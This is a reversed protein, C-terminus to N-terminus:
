RGAWAMMHAPMPQELGWHFSVPRSGEYKVCRVPGLFVYPASVGEPTKKRDRIFLLITYGLEEHRIYSQAITSQISTTSQSQWHFLHSSIAYDEYMTSPSFERENKNIDAFFAHIKREKIHLVGERCTHPHEFSGLGLALLIQERTYSCHLQLYGSAAYVPRHYHCKTSHQWQILEQLDLLLDPYRLMFAHLEPLSEAPRVVSWLVKYVSSLTDVDFEEPHSLAHAFRELLDGDDQLLLKRMGEKLYQEYQGLEQELAANQAVCPLLKSYLADPSDVGLFELLEFLTSRRGTEAVHSRIEHLMRKRTFQSITEKINRLIHERSQRDLHIYCGTPLYSFGQEIQQQIKKAVTRTSLAKFRQLYNFKRHARAIFDFVVLSEKDAYRRLGRGLQQLFITLSETPRLFLVTDVDPIDVGENYLDVTFLVNLQGTQLKDKALRRCEAPTKSTLAMSPVGKRNFFDAMFEAHAVDVCFGICKMKLVNDLHESIQTLIWAARQENHSLLSSLQAADYRGNEFKLHSYDVSSEDSIGYYIFPSLLTREIADALRLEHTFTNGFLPRIDQGDMREPTATLGILSEPQLHSLAERYGSAAGHHAEDVVIYQFHNPAFQGKLKNWMTITCFWHTHNSPSNSGDVLCGFSGMRLVQRFATRAQQLIEKRHALFLLTAHPHQKCFQAYDFAAIMTKGTGTAAVILHKNKGIAREREINELAEEQYRFPHLTFFSVAVDDTLEKREIALATQLRKLDAEHRCPEFTHTDEWNIEFAAIASEWLHTLEHQSVKVNWELGHDMAVKSINSSGIYASGFGTKRHFIYTKAHLRTHRTDYSVRVETNPLRRLWEIAKSETVGMYTTTAIRLCPEPADRHLATFELLAEKLPNLGTMKIFSVLWDARDCTALEKRIQEVLKPTRMAGTLLASISLPSDPLTPEEGAMYAPPIALLKRGDTPLISERIYAQFDESDLLTRLRVYFDKEKFPETKLKLYQLVEGALHAPFEQWFSEPGPPADLVVHCGCQELRQQLARTIFTDYYGEQM